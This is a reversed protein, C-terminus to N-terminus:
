GQKHGSIYGAAFEGAIRGSNITFGFSHGPYYTNYTDAETGGIEVGAAFLGAIVNDQRNLVEMRQNVRTGGHTAVCDICCKIAYYPPSSVPSLYKQDKVFDADYCERCFSNYRAVTSELAGPAAGLWQGIDAMSDSVKVKGQAAQSQLEQNLKQVWLEFGMHTVRPLRRSRVDQLIAQKVNEDMITYAIREPQRYLINAAETFHFVVAEDAFREGRRNVWITDPRMVLSSLYVPEIFPALIELALMDETAAGVAAALRIGDGRRLMGSHNIQAHDYSPLYKKILRRNGSFGGTALITTKAKISVERGGTKALVGTVNGHRDTILKQARTQYLFRVGLGACNRLLVRVVAAGTSGPGKTVHFTLPVSGPYVPAVNEFEVGKQELWGITDGSKNILARLLRPNIKWHAYSMAMKFIDDRGAQIGQRKQVPSDAAFIGEPFVANGGAVPRAELITIDKVGNEAATVAAALGAGGGGIILLDTSLNEAKEAVNSSM